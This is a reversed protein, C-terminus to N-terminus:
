PFLVKESVIYQNGVKHALALRWGTSHGMSRSRSNDQRYVPVLILKWEREKPQKITTM